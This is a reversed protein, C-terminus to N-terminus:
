VHGKMHNIKHFAVPDKMEVELLSHTPSATKFRALRCAKKLEHRRRIRSSVKTALATKGANLDGQGKRSGQGPSEWLCARRKNEEPIKHM